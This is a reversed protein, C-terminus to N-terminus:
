LDGEDLLKLYRERFAERARSLLSEAAKATIELRHAIEEVKLGECYKWRLASEQRSSLLSLATDTIIREEDQQVLADALPSPDAPDLLHEEPSGASANALSAFRVGAPHSKRYRQVAVRRAIGFLWLLFDPEDGQFGRISEIARTFVEQTTERASDRDGRHLHFALRYVKEGLREYAGKWAARDARRLAGPNWDGL